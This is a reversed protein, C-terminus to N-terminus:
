ARAQRHRAAKGDHQHEWDLLKRRAAVFADRIALYADAHDHRAVPDRDVALTQGPVTLEISVHVHGGHRQSRHPLEVVVRCGHLNPSVAEVKAAGERIAAELAPTSEMNRFTIDLPRQLM